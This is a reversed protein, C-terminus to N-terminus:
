RRKRPKARPPTPLADLKIVRRQPKPLGFAEAFEEDFIWDIEEQEFELEGTERRVLVYRRSASKKPLSQFWALFAASEAEDEPTRDTM